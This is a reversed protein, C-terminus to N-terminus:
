FGFRLTFRFTRGDNLTNNIQGFSPSTLDHTPEAFQPTNFFNISEARLTLNKDGGVRWNRSLSANINGIGGKRFVNHGLNGRQEGLAIFAFASRPLRESSTDPHGVTRGLISPDLLNPRDGSQGDVNGLGPADSGTGVDFPTGTKRLAVASFSWRALSRSLWGPAGAPAPTTYSLRLLFAHPQDFGSL